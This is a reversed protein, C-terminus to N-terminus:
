FNYLIDTSEILKSMYNMGHVVFEQSKVMTAWFCKQLWSIRRMETVGITTHANRVSMSSPQILPTKFSHGLFTLQTLGCFSMKERTHSPLSTGRTWITVTNNANMSVQTNIQHLIKLSTKIAVIAIARQMSLVLERLVCEALERQLDWIWAITQWVTMTTLKLYKSSTELTLKTILLTYWLNTQKQSTGLMTPIRLNM